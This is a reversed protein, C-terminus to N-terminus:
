LILSILGGALLGGLFAVFLNSLAKSFSGKNIISATLVGSGAAFAMDIWIPGSQVILPFGHNIMWISGIIVGAAVFGGIAGIKKVFRDFFLVLCFPFLSAGLFTKIMNILTM